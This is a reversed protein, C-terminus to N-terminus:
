GPPPYLSSYSDPRIMKFPEARRAREERLLDEFDRKATAVSGASTNLLELKSATGGLHQSAQLRVVEATLRVLRQALNREALLTMPQAAKLVFLAQELEGRLAFARSLLELRLAILDKADTDNESMHSLIDHATDLWQDRETSLGRVPDHSHLQVLAILLAARAVRSQASPFREGAERAIEHAVRLNVDALMLKDHFYDVYEAGAGSALTPVDVDGQMVLTRREGATRLCADSVLRSALDRYTGRHESVLATAFATALPSAGAFSSRSGVCPNRAEISQTLRGEVWTHVQRPPIHGRSIISVKNTDDSDKSATSRETPALPQASGLTKDLIQDLRTTDLASRTFQVDYIAFLWKGDLAQAVDWVDVLGGTSYALSLVSDLNEPRLESSRIPLDVGINSLALYRRGNFTVGRGSFVFVLLDGNNQDLSAATTKLAQTLDSSNRPVLVPLQEVRASSSVFSKVADAIALVDQAAYPVDAVLPFAYNEVAVPMVVVKRGQKAEAGAARRAITEAAAQLSLWAADGGLVGAGHSQTPHSKLRVEIERYASAAEPLRGALDHTAAEVLRSFPDPDDGISSKVRTACEEYAMLVCGNAVQLPFSQSAALLQAGLNRPNNSWGPVWAPKPPEYGSGAVIGLMKSNCDLLPQYNEISEAKDQLARVVLPTTSCGALADTNSPMTFTMGNDQSTVALLSAHAATSPPSKLLYGGYPADYIIVMPGAWIDVIEQAVEPRFPLLTCDARLTQDFCARSETPNPRFGVRNTPIVMARGSYVVVLHHRQNAPRQENELRWDRLISLGEKLNPRAADIPLLFESYNEGAWTRLLTSWLQLFEQDRGSQEPPNRLFLVYPRNAEFQGFLSRISAFKSGETVIGALRAAQAREIETLDSSAALDEIQEKSVLRGTAVKLAASRLTARHALDPKRTGVLSLESLALDELVLQQAALEQALDQSATSSLARISHAGALLASGLQFSAEGQLHRTIGLPINGKFGDHRQLEEHFKNNLFGFLSGTTIAGNTAAAGRLGELLHHAFISRGLRDDEFTNRDKPTAPIMAVSLEGFKLERYIKQAEAVVERDYEVNMYRLRPDSLPNANGAGCMNVLFTVNVGALNRGRVQDRFYNVIDTFPVRGTQATPSFNSPLFWLEKTASLTGHGGLYVLVNTNNDVKQVFTELAERLDNATVHTEKEDDARLIVSAPDLDSIVRLQDWVATADDAAYKLKDLNPDTYKEIGVIFALTRPPKPGQAMAPVTHLLLLTAAVLLAKM